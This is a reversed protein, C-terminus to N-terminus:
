RSSFSEAWERLEDEETKPAPPTPSETSSGLQPTVDIVQPLTGGAGKIADMRDMLVSLINEGIDHKQIAKGDIKEVVWKSTEVKLQEKYRNTRDTICREIEQLAPEAMKRLRGGVTEEYIRERIREVEEAILTNSLLISVRSQTYDLAQAIEKQSKGQAALEALKRHRPSLPRGPVLMKDGWSKEESDITEEDSGEPTVDFDEM